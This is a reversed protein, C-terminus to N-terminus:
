EDEDPIPLGFNNKARAKDGKAVDFYAHQQNFVLRDKGANMKFVDSMKGAVEEVISDRDPTPQESSYKDIQEVYCRCRYHNEPYVEDWMQDDVEAVVGDLPGCIECTHEDETAHYQLMPFAEKQQEIQNWKSANQAQAIATDYEAELWNRNYMGYLDEFRNKFEQFSEVESLLDSMERVQQYTKAASFLYINERLEILLDYDVSGVPFEKLSGGFGKYLGKKLFNAIAYYLDEPLDETTYYGEYVGKMLDQLLQDSFGIDM